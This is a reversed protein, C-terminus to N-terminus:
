QRRPKTELTGADANRSTSQTAGPRASQATAQRTGRGTVIRQPWAHRGIRVSLFRNTKDVPRVHDTITPSTEHSSYGQMPEDGSFVQSPWYLSTPRRAVATVRISKDIPDAHMSRVRQPEDSPINQDPKHGAHARGTEQSSLCRLPLAHRSSQSSRFLSTSQSTVFHGAWARRKTQCSRSHCTTAPRESANAPVSSIM